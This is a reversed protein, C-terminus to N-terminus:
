AARSAPQHWFAGRRVSVCLAVVDALVLAAASLMALASHDHDALLAGLIAGLGMAVISIGRRAAAKGDRQRLDAAIGTLSMTLVTTTFDPVALKRVAANQLGLAFACVVVVVDRPASSLPQDLLGLLASAVLLLVAEISLTVLLLRGRNSALSSVLPGGVGAGALFGVLALASAALSYGLTGVVAFGIFVVNGTMNAVFVRGLTLISVADVLGTTVTLLTLLAPLPGHTAGALSEILASMRSVPGRGNVTSSDTSETAPKEPQPSVAADKGFKPRTSADRADDTASVSRM